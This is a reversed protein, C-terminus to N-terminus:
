GIQNEVIPLYYGDIPMKRHHLSNCYEVPFEDGGAAACIDFYQRAIVRFFHIQVAAADDRALYIVMHMEQQGSKVSVNPALTLM